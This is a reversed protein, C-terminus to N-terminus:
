NNIQFLSVLEFYNCVITFPNSKQLIKRDHAGFTVGISFTGANNAMELDFSTDGIMVVEDPKTNTKDMLVNLMDPAPKANEVEDAGITYDFFKDLGSERLVRDLGQRSKGTAVALWYGKAKLETLVEEVGDFVPSPTKDGDVYQYRYEKAIADHSDADPFLINFCEALGLGIIGKVAESTPVPLGVNKASTQMASVIRATSDMITGDWDFVVLKLDNITKQTRNM